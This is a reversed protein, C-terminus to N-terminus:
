RAPIAEIKGFEKWISSYKYITVSAEPVYLTVKSLDVRDGKGTLYESFASMTINPPTSNYCTISKLSNCKYFAHGGISEVKQPLYVIELQECGYFISGIYSLQTKSLDATKLSKCNYFPAGSIGKISNPLSISEIGSDGFAYNGIYTVGNPIDIKRLNVAGSFAKDGIRTVSNSVVVTELNNYKGYYSSEFASETITTVGTNIKVIKIADSLSGWPHCSECMRGRGTIVLTQTAGDFTAVVSTPTSEVGCNWKAQAQTKLSFFCLTLLILFSRKM